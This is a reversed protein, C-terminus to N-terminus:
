QFFSGGKYYVYKIWEPKSECWATSHVGDGVIQEAIDGCAGFFDEEWFDPNTTLRKKRHECLLGCAVFKLGTKTPHARTILVELWDEERPEETSSLSAYRSQIYGNPNPCLNPASAPVMRSSTRCDPGILKDFNLQAKEIDRNVFSRKAERCFSACLLINGFKVFFDDLARPHILGSLQPFSLFLDEEWQPFLEEIDLAEIDTGEEAVEQAVALPNHLFMVIAFIVLKECLRYRNM